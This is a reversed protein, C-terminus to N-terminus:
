CKDAGVFFAGYLTFGVMLFCLLGDVLMVFWDILNLTISM